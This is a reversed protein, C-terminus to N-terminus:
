VFSQINQCLDPNIETDMAKEPTTVMNIGAEATSERVAEAATEMIEMETETNGGPETEATKGMTRPLEKM